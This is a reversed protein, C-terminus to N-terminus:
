KRHVCFTNDKCNDNDRMAAADFHSGKWNKNYDYFATRAGSRVLDNSANRLEFTAIVGANYSPKPLYFLNLLFFANTRTSGAMEM